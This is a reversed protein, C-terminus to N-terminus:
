LWSVQDCYAQPKRAEQRLVFPLLSEIATQDIDYLSWGYHEVLAREM